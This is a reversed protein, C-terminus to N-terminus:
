QQGAHLYTLVTCVSTPLVARQRSQHQDPRLHHTTAASPSPSSGTSCTRLLHGSCTQIGRDKIGMSPKGPTCAAGSVGTGLRGGMHVGISSPQVDAAVLAPRTHGFVAIGLRHPGEPGQGRGEIRQRVPQGGALDRGHRHFRGPHRPTRDILNQFRPPKSHVQHICAMERVHRPALAIHLITLPNLIQVGAAPQAARKARVGLHTGHPGVHPM